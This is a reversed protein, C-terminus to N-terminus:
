LQFEVLLSLSKIIENIGKIQKDGDLDVYRESYKGSLVTRESLRYSVVGTVNATPTQLKNLSIYSVNSQSYSIYVEKLIPIVLPILSIKGMISKKTDSEDGYMDQYSASVIVAKGINTELSGYWGISSKVADLSKDKTILITDGVVGSRQEDYLNDFYGPIFKDSFKRGELNLNFVLFKSYFGPFIIGSGYGEIKAYEAYHGLKFHEKDMLPLSYNLGMISLDNQEGYRRLPNINNDLLHVLEPDYLEINNNVYSNILPSDLIGDGDMDPDETIYMGSANPTESNYLGDGDLDWRFNKLKPNPDLVNPVGDGDADEYKGYQNRDTAFTLGVQLGSLSKNESITFPKFHASAALIENKVIDSSFAEAGPQLPLKLNMGIMTGISRQSPYLLRNSYKNMILGYGLTYDTFGGAQLYFPADNDAYKVYYIKGVLDIPDDWDDSKVHMDSDILIDLDLGFSFNMYRFEPLLRIQSYTESGTTVYGANGNFNVQTRGSVGTDVMQAILLLPILLLVTFVLNKM